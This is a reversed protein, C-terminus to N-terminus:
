AHIFGSVAMLSTTTHIDAPTLQLGLGRGFITWSVVTALWGVLVGVVTDSWWHAGFYVRATMVSPILALLLSAPLTSAADGNAAAAAANIARVYFFLNCALM